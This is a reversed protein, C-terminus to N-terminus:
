NHQEEVLAAWEEAVEWHVGPLGAEEEEASRLQRSRHYTHPMELEFDM